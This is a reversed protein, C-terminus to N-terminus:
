AVNLARSIEYLNTGDCFITLISVNNSGAAVTPAVGGAWKYATGYSLTWTGTVDQVVKLVVIAGAQLNTPNDLVHSATLTVTAHIGLAM